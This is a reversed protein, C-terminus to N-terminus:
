LYGGSVNRDYFSESMKHIITSTEGAQMLEEQPLDGGHLAELIFILLVVGVIIVVVVLVWSRWWTGFSQFVAVVVLFGVAVVVVVVRVEVLVGVGVVVGVLVVVVVVVVVVVEVVVVVVVVIAILSWCRTVPFSGWSFALDGNLRM